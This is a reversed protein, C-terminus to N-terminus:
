TGDSMKEAEFRAMVAARSDDIQTQCLALLEKNWKNPYGLRMLYDRTVIAEDLTMKM